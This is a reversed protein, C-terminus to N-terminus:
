NQALAMLKGARRELDVRADVYEIARASPVMRLKGLDVNFARSLNRRRAVAAQLDSVTEFRQDAPRSFWQSQAITITSSM